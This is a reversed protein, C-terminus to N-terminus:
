TSLFCAKKNCHVNQKSRINGPLNACLVDWFYAWPELKTGNQQPLTIARLAVQCDGTSGFCGHLIFRIM